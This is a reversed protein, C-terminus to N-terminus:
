PGSTAASASVFGAVAKIQDPTLQEGFAPMAGQGKTVRAVVLDTSPKVQDLNPGVDGTAAAASLTHCGGCGSSVFVERGAANPGTGASQEVPPLFAAAAEDQNVSGIAWGAAALGSLAILTMVMVFGQLSPSTYRPKAVGLTIRQTGASTRGRLTQVVNWVLLLQALALVAVLPISADTMQDYQGPLTAFRRPAGELGQIIWIVSIGTAAFFTIWIHWMGM